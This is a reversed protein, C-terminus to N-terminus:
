GHRRLFEVGPEGAGEPGSEYAHDVSAAVLRRGREPLLAEVHRLLRSAHGRRRHDPHTRLGLEALTRNDKLPLTLDACCVPVGGATLLLYQREAAVAPARAEARVEEYMYVTVYPRGHCEGVRYLEYWTRLADEDYPDVRVVRPEEGV